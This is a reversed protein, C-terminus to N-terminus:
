NGSQLRQQVFQNIIIGAKDLMKRRSFWYAKIGEGSPSNVAFDPSHPRLIEIKEDMSLDDVSFIQRSDLNSVERGACLLPNISNGQETGPQPKPKKWFSTVTSLLKKM